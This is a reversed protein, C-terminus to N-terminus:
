GLVIPEHGDTLVHAVGALDLPHAEAVRGLTERLTEGDAAVHAIQGVPRNLHHGLSRALLHVREQGGHGTVHGPVDSLGLHAVFRRLAARIETYPMLRRVYMM